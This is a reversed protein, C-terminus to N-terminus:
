EVEPVSFHFPVRDHWSPVVNIDHARCLENIKARHHEPFKRYRSVISEAVGLLPALDKASMRLLHQRIFQAPTIPRILKVKKIKKKM